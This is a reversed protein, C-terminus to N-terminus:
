GELGGEYDYVCDVGGVARGAGGDLDGFQCGDSRGGGV